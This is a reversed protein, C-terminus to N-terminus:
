ISYSYHRDVAPGRAVVQSERMTEGRMMLLWFLVHLWLLATVDRCLGVDEVVSRDYMISRYKYTGTFLSGRCGRGWQFYFMGWSRLWIELVISDRHLSRRSTKLGLWTVASSTPLTQRPGIIGVGFSARRRQDREETPIQGVQVLM